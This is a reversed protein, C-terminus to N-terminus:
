LVSGATGREFFVTGAPGDALKYQLAASRPLLRVGGEGRATAPGAHLAVQGSVAGSRGSALPLVELHFTCCQQLTRLAPADEAQSGFGLVHHRILLTAGAKHCVAALARVFRVQDLAPVTGLWSLVALDDVMVLTDTEEGDGLASVVDDLVPRLTGGDSVRAFVDIFRFTPADLRVNSKAALVKWRALPESVSLIIAKRKHVRAPQEATKTPRLHEQLARHLIFDASAALQDTVLLLIGMPLDFPTFM